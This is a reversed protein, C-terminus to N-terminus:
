ECCPQAALQRVQMRYGAAFRDMKVQTCKRVTRGVEVARSIEEETVGQERAKEVHYELCPQCNATIAAGIAILEDQKDFNM